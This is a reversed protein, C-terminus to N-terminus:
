REKFFESIDINLVRAIRYLIAISFTQYVKESEINSILSLSVDCLEALREQTIRGYKDAYKSNNNLRYYKINRSIIVYIYDAYYNIDKKEEETM